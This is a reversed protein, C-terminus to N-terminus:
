ITWTKEFGLLKKKLKIRGKASFGELSGDTRIVRQCPVFLVLNNQNCIKEVHRPSLNYKKALKEYSLTHDIIM